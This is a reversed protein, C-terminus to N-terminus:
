GVKEKIQKELLEIRRELEAKEEKLAELEVKLGEGASTQPIGWRYWGRGYGFMDIVEKRRKKKL